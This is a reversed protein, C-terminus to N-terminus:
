SLLTKTGWYLLMGVVVTGGLSRTRLAIVFTPIGALLEPRMFAVKDGSVFLIPAVLAALIAAPVFELWETLLRPLQRRSLVALPLWRPIYTAAGMGAVILLYEGTTM